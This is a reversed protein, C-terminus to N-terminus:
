ITFNLKRSADGAFIDIISEMNTDELKIVNKNIFALSNLRNNTTTTRKETKINNLFSFAREASANSTPSCILVRLLIQILSLYESKKILVSIEISDKEESTLSNWIEKYYEIQTEFRVLTVDKGLINRFKGILFKM